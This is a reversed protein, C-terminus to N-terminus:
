MHQPCALAAPRAQQNGVGGGVLGPLLLKKLADWVDDNVGMLAERVAVDAAAATPNTTKAAAAAHVVVDVTAASAAQVARAAVAAHDM